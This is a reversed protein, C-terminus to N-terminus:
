NHQNVLTNQIKGQPLQFVLRHSSLFSAVTNKELEDKNIMSIMSFCTSDRNEVKERDIVTWYSIDHHSIFDEEGTVADEFDVTSCFIGAMDRLCTM